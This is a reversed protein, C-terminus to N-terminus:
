KVSVSSDTRNNPSEAMKALTKEINRQIRLWHQTAAKRGGISLRMQVYSRAWQLERDNEHEIAANIRNLEQFRSM